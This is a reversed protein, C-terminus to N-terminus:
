IKKGGPLQRKWWVISPNLRHNVLIIAIFVALVHIPWIANTFSEKSDSVLTQSINLLNSYILYVFVAYLVAIYNGRRPNVYALPVAILILGLAMLPLGIRWLLEGLAIPTPNQLLEVTPTEKSSLSVPAQAKKEIDVSYEQFELIKFDGETPKGEYRRGKFIKVRKTGDELNEIYGSESMAVTLRQNRFDTVFVNQIENSISNIKEVFFVRGSNASEFFQGPIIMSAEDRGKFKQSIEITKANSWPWIFISMATIIVLWPLAFRLVPIYLMKLNLGSAYWVAMESDKHWRILVFIIAIFISVSLIVGIYGIMALMILTIVDTPNVSGSAAYGLIRIVLTTMMITILVLFVGGTTYSLEKKLAKEYIM